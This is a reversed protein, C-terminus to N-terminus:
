DPSNKTNSITLSGKAVNIGYGFKLSGGGGLVVKM